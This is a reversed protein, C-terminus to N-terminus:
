TGIPRVFCSLPRGFLNAQVSCALGALDQPGVGYRLIRYARFPNLVPSSIIACRFGRGKETKYHIPFAQHLFLM